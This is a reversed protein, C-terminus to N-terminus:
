RSGPDIVRRDRSNVIERHSPYLSPKKYLTSFITTFMRDNDIHQTHVARSRLVFNHVRLAGRGRRFASECSRCDANRGGSRDWNRLLNSTSVIYSLAQGNGGGRPDVNCPCIRRTRHPRRESSRNRSAARPTMEGVDSIIWTEVPFPGISIRHITNPAKASKSTNTDVSGNSRRDPNVFANGTVALGSKLRGSCNNYPRRTRANGPCIM